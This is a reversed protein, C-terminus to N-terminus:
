GAPAPATSITSTSPGAACTARPSPRPRARDAALAARELQVRGLRGLLAGADPAAALRRERRHAPDRRSSRGPRRRAACAAARPAAASRRARRRARAGRRSRRGRRRRCGAGARARRRRPRRALGLAGLSSAVAIRSAHMSAPPESVPSCPTPTSLAHEIGFSKPSRSRSAIRRRRVAEVGVPERVRALHERRRPEAALHRPGVARVRQLPGPKGLTESGAVSSSAASAARPRRLADRDLAVAAVDHERRRARFRTSSCSGPSRVAITSAPM